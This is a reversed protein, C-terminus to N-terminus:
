FPKTLGSRRWSLPSAKQGQTKVADLKRACLATKENMDVRPFHSQPYTTPKGFSNPNWPRILGSFDAYHFHVAHAQM